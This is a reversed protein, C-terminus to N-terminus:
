FLVRGRGSALRSPASTSASLQSAVPSSTHMPGLWNRPQSQVVFDDAVETLQAPEDRLRKSAGQGDDYEADICMSGPTSPFLVAPVAYKHKKCEWQIRALSLKLAETCNHADRNIFRIAIGCQSCHFMLTKCEKYYHDEVKFQPCEYACGPVPCHVFRNACESKEHEVLDEMNGVFNCQTVQDAVRDTYDEVTRCRFRLDRWQNWQQIPWSAQPLIQEKTFLTRCLPCPRPTESDEVFSSDTTTDLIGQLCGECAFHRCTTLSSPHRPIGLCVVCQWDLAKKLRKEEKKKDEFKQEGFLDVDVGDVACKGYVVRLYSSMQPRVFAM